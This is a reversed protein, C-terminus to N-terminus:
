CPEIDYQLVQGGIHSGSIDPYTKIKSTKGVMKMLRSITSYHLHVYNAVEMQNSRVAEKM